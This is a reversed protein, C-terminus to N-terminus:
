TISSLMRFGKSLRFQKFEQRLVLSSLSAPNQKPLSQSSPGSQSILNDAPPPSQLPRSRVQDHFRITIYIRVYRRSCRHNTRPREQTHNQQRPATPTPPVCYHHRPVLFPHTAYTSPSPPSVELYGPSRHSLTQNLDQISNSANTQIPASPVGTRSSSVPLSSVGSAPPIGEKDQIKTKINITVLYDGELTITKGTPSVSIQIGGRLRLVLCPLIQCHPLHYESSM